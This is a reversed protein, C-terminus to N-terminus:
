LVIGVIRNSKLQKSVCWKRTFVAIDVTQAVKPIVKAIKINDDTWEAWSYTVKWKSFCFLLIPFVVFAAQQDAELSNGGVAERAAARRQLLAWRVPRTGEDFLGIYFAKSPRSWLGTRSWFWRLLSSPAAVRNPPISSRQRTFFDKFGRPQPLNNM